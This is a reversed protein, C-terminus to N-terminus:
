RWPLQGRQMGLSERNRPQGRDREAVKMIKKLVSKQSDGTRKMPMMLM